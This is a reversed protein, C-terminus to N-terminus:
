RREPQDIAIKKLAEIVTGYDGQVGGVFRPRLQHAMAKTEKSPDSVLLLLPIDRFLHQLSLGVFPNIKM